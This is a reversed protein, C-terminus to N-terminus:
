KLVSRIRSIDSNLSQLVTQYQLATRALEINQADMDVGNGDLRTEKRSNTHVQWRSEEVAKRLNQSNGAGAARELKERFENEFTVYQSKYGPTEANAINNMTVEQKKWLYDLSKKQMELANGFISHM